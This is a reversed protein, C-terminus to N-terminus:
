ALSKKWARLRLWIRETAAFGLLSFLVVYARPLREAKTIEFGSRSLYRQYSATAWRPDSQYLWHLCRFFAALLRQRELASLADLDFSELMRERLEVSNRKRRAINSQSMQGSPRERIITRATDMRQFLTGASYLRYMLDYEQSSSLAENWGGVARV